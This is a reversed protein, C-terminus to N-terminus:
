RAATATASDGAAARSRRRSDRRGSWLIALTSAIFVTSYTGAVVGILMTFAFGQLPEGGFVFLAVVSLFTTGATLVTRSLTQNVSLNVVADLSARPLTKVNERVRDFIVITDNVSYGIITLLAAVVNLSLDYGALSVVALTVVVDHVTAAIAGVAFAYRFRIGIYVAIAALSAAVAYIGRRQLDSGITASVLERRQFEFDPLDAARLAGEVKRVTDELADGESSLLPLRIQFQRDGVAGYRQVVEDGPLGAVATRVQEESVNDTEFEVVALTGGTFDIGLPMGRSAVAAMGGAVIAISLIWAPWRWQTVRLQTAGFLQGGGISLTQAGARRSLALEFMTRSVFVATFANALLGIALSTAFGRIPTTGFQFLLAAAILSTVHTDVITLWVRSFAAKIAARAGHAAALEEKIREFILVNSDVGMGITLILGAIGPLTLTVPIYAMLALLILLNLVISVLANIGTLRYYTVMFLLVLGLGGLSAIVGARVSASGLSAGITREELYEMDAPLAGSNLNIVQEVMEERSLGIIQGQNDIRSLITAVARVNDDLV